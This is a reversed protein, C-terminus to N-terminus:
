QNRRRCWPHARFRVDHHAEGRMPLDTHLLIRGAEGVGLALGATKTHEAGQDEEGLALDAAKTHEAGQDGEGLRTRNEAWSGVVLRDIRVGAAEMHLQHQIRNGAARRHVLAPAGVSNITSCPTM